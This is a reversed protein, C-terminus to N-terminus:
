VGKQLYSDNTIMIFPMDGWSVRRNNVHKEVAKDEGGWAAWQGKEWPQLLNNKTNLTTAGNTCGQFVTFSSGNGKTAIEGASFATFKGWPQTQFHDLVINLAEEWMIFTIFNMDPLLSAGLVVSLCAVELTKSNFFLLCCWPTGLVPAHCYSSLRSRDRTVKDMINSGLLPLHTDSCARCSM